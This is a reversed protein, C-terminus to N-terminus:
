SRGRGNSSCVTEKAGRILRRDLRRRLMDLVAAHVLFEGINGKSGNTSLVMQQHFRKSLPWAVGAQKLLKQVEAKLGAKTSNSNM